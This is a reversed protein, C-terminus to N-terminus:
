PRSEHRQGRQNIVSSGARRAYIVRSTNKINETKHSGWRKRRGGGGKLFMQIFFTDTQHVAGQHFEGILATISAGGRHKMPFVPAM